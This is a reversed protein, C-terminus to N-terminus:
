IGGIYKNGKVTQPFWSVADLCTPSTRLLDDFTPWEFDIPDRRCGFV